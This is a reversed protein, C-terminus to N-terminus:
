FKNMKKCSVKSDSYTCEKSQIIVSNIVKVECSTNVTIVGEIPAEFDLNLENNYDSFDIKVGGFNETKLCYNEASYIIERMYDEEFYNNYSVKEISYNRYVLEIIILFLGMTMIISFKKISM